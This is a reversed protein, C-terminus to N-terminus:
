ENPWVYVTLTVWLFLSCTMMNWITTETIWGIFLCNEENDSCVSAQLLSFSESALAWYLFFLPWSLCTMQPRDVPLACISHMRREPFIPWFASVAALLLDKATFHSPITPPQNPSLASSFNYPASLCIHHSSLSCIHMLHWSFSNDLWTNNVNLSNLPPSSIRTSFANSM